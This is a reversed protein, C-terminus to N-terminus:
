FAGSNKRFLILLTKLILQLDYQLSWNQQYRLDLKIVEEFNSIRSRGNVQWEGTMGPKVDLRQWEPVEYREVEDPTPPRTGVLSMEGRLVNWFQPLEDLSTRRLFRGVKTIRPDNSNKFIAGKAQNTVENKRAEADVCMSRFKIIKFRKGMWGCRTQAFFIPGPSERKIAIAIPVFLIATIALGVLSGIIDIFRKIWSRVSPHTQPLRDNSKPKDSTTATIKLVEDLGTMSLVAMVPPRVHYLILEIEKERTAKFNHVLAGVGSSDIFETNAFDLILQEPLTNKALLQHCTEKFAVAELVTLRQPMQIVPLNNHFVIPFDTEPTQLTM